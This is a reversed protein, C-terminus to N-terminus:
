RGLRIWDRFEAASDALRDRLDARALALRRRMREIV